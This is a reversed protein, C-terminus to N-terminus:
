WVSNVKPIVVNINKTTEIWVKVKKIQAHRKLIKENADILYQNDLNLVIEDNTTM